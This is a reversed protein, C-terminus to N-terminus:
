FTSRATAETIQGCVTLSCWPAGDHTVFKVIPVRAHLVYTLGRRGILRWDLLCNVVHRLVTGKQEKGLQHQAALMHLLM